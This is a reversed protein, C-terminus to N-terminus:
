LMNILVEKLAIKAHEYSLGGQFYAIYPERIPADASLEISSGQVFSGAAMIVENEYGPMPWPEPVVHSDIPSAAQIAQCFKILEQANKCRIACTIDSITGLTQYGLASFVESFLAAAKM